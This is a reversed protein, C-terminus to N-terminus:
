YYYDDCDDEYYYNEYDDRMYYGEYNLQHTEHYSMEYYSERADDSREQIYNELEEQVKPLGLYEAILVSNSSIADEDKDWVNKLLSSVKDNSSDRDLDQQFLFNSVDSNTSYYLLGKGDRDKSNADFSADALFLLKFTELDDMVLTLNYFTTKILGTKVLDNRSNYYDNEEFTKQALVDIQEPSYIDKCMAIHDATLVNHIYYFKVDEFPMHTPNFMAIAKGAFLQACNNFMKVYTEPDPIPCTHDWGNMARTYINCKSNASLKSRPLEDLLEEYTLYHRLSNGIKDWSINDCHKRFREITFNESHKALFLLNGNMEDTINDMITQATPSWVFDDIIKDTMYKDFAYSLIVNRCVDNKYFKAIYRSSYRVHELCALCLEKQDIGTNDGIFRDIYYLAKSMFTKGDNNRILLDEATFVEPVDPIDCLRHYLSPTIDMFLKNEGNENKTLAYVRARAFVEPYDSSITGLDSTAVLNYASKGNMLPYFAEPVHRDLFVDYKSTLYKVEEIQDEDCYNAFSSLTDHDIVSLGDPFSDLKKWTEIDGDKAIKEIMYNRSKSGIEFISIRNEIPVSVRSLTNFFPWLTNFDADSSICQIGYEAELAIRSTTVSNPYVVVCDDHTMAPYNDDTLEEEGLMLLISHMHLEEAECIKKELDKPSSVDMVTGYTENMSVKYNIEPFVYSM